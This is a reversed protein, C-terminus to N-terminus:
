EEVVEAEKIKEENSVINEADCHPCIIALYQGDTKKEGGELEKGCIDCYDKHPFSPLDALIEKEQRLEQWNIILYMLTFILYLGAVIGAVIIMWTYSQVFGIVFGAVFLIIFSASLWIFNETDLDDLMKIISM